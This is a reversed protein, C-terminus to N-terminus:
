GGIEQWLCLQEFGCVASVYTLTEDELDVGVLVGVLENKESFVPSGSDGLTNEMKVAAVQMRENKVEGWTTMLTIVKEREVVEGELRALEEGKGVLMWVRQGEVLETVLAMQKAEVPAKVTMQALDRESLRLNESV